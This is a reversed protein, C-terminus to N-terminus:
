KSRCRTRKPCATKFVDSTVCSLAPLKAERRSGRWPRSWRWRLRWSRCASPGAGSARTEASHAAWSWPRRAPEGGGRKTAKSPAKAKEVEAVASVSPNSDPAPSIVSCAVIKNRCSSIFSLMMVPRTGYVGRDGKDAVPATQILFPGITRAPLTFRLRVAQTRSTTGRLRGNQTGLVPRKPIKPASCASGKRGTKPVAIHTTVAM